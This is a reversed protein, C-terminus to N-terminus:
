GRQKFDEIEWDVQMFRRPWRSQAPEPRPHQRLLRRARRPRRVHPVDEPPARARAAPAAAHPADPNAHPVHRRRRQPRGRVDHFRELRRTHKLTPCTAGTSVGACTTLRNLASRM